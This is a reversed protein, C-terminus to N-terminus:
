CCVSWKHPNSKIEQNDDNLLLHSVPLNAEILRSVDGEMHNQGIIHEAAGVVETNSGIQRERGTANVEQKFDKEYLNHERHRDVQEQDIPRDEITTYYKKDIVKSANNPVGARHSCVVNNGSSYNSPSAM